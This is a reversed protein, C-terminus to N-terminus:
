LGLCFIEGLNDVWLQYSYQISMREESSQRKGKREEKKGSYLDTSAKLLQTVLCDKLKHM